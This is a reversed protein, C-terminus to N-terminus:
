TLLNGLSIWAFQRPIDMTFISHRGTPSVEVSFRTQDVSPVLWYGVVTARGSALSPTPVFAHPYRAQFNFVLIGLDVGALNDALQDANAAAAAAPAVPRPPSRRAPPAPARGAHGAAPPAPKRGDGNYEEENNDDDINKKDKSNYDDLNIGEGETHLACAFFRFLRL